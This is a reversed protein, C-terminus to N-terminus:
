NDWDITISTLYLAGSASRIGIYPYDEEITLETSTGYEITGLVTGSAEGYLDSAASYATLSGYITLTRGSTTNENWVVTIKKANGGSTTTVIGSNSKNSRLQISEKDGASNFKYVAGSKATYTSEVYSTGTATTSAKTLVDAGGTQDTGSQDSKHTLESIETDQAMKATGNYVGIKGYVIVEDGVDVMGDETFPDGHLYLGRFIQLQAGQNTGDASIYYNLNGYTTNVTGVSSIIGKVYVYETSAETFTLVDAPTYPNDSTGDGTLTAAGTTCSVPESAKSKRYTVKDTPLAVISISYETNFNLGNLTLTSESVSTEKGNYTVVYGAANEVDNWDVVISNTASQSLTATVGAPTTFRPRTDEVVPKLYLDKIQTGNYFAYGLDNANKALIRGSHAVSKINYTGQIENSEAITLYYASEATTAANGSGSYSLYKTGNKFSYEAADSKKEIIWFINNNDSAYNSAAPDFGELEVKDLRSSTGEQESSMAYYKDEYKAVVVYTGPVFAKLDEEVAGAMNVSLKTSKGVEFTISEEEPITFEKVFKKSETTVTVSFKGSPIECPFCTFIATNGNTFNLSPEYNMKVYNTNGDQYYGYQDVTGETLNVRTRGTLIIGEPVTFEVSTVPDTTNLGAIALKGVAIIRAFNLTFYDDSSPQASLSVTKSVLLDAKPDFSTLTPSQEVPTIVKLRTVDNNDSTVYATSPYVAHYTYSTGTTNADFTASFLATTGDTVVGENSKVATTEGGVTQLVQLYEGTANWFVNNDEDIFTRTSQLENGSVFNITVPEKTLNIPEAEETCATFVFGALALASIIYKRM